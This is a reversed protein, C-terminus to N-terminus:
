FLLIDEFISEELISSNDLMPTFGPDIENIPYGDTSAMLFSGSMTLFFVEITPELYPEKM